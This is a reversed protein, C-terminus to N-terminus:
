STLLPEFPKFSDNHHQSCVSFMYRQKNITRQIHGLNATNKCQTGKSTKAQCRKDDNIHIVSSTHKASDAEHAVSTEAKVPQAAPKSAVAASGGANAKEQEALYKAVKSTPEPAPKAAPEPKAPAAVTAKYRGALYKGVGTTPEPEPEPESVPEPDATKVPELAVMKAAAKYQGALYKAVGTLPEQVAEPAAVAPAEAAKAATQRALYKEVGTAVSEAAQTKAQTVGEQKALYKAVGTLESSEDRYINESSIPGALKSAAFDLFQEFLNKAM